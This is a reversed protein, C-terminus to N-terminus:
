APLPVPHRAAVREYIDCLGALVYHLFPRRKWGDLAVAGTALDLPPCVAIVGVLPAEPRHAAYRLALHGGLSFGWLVLPDLPWAIGRLTGQIATV